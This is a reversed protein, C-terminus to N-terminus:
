LAQPFEIATGTMRHIPCRMASCSFHLRPIIGVRSGHPGMERQVGIGKGHIIRVDLIGRQLCADLYDRVLDKVDRPQFMHLDLVGDIDLEATVFQSEQLVVALAEEKNVYLVGGDAHTKDGWQADKVAIKHLELKM